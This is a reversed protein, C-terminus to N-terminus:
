PGVLAAKRLREAYPGGNQSSLAAHAVARAEASRGSLVLAQVQLLTAEAGLSATGLQAHLDLLALAANPDNHKLATRVSDLLAVESDLRDPRAKVPTNQRPAATAPAVASLPALGSARAGGFSLQATSSPAPPAILTVSSSAVLAAAMKPVATHATAPAASPATGQMSPAVSLNSLGTSAGPMSPQIVKARPTAPANLVFPSLAVGGILLATGGWQALPGWLPIRIAGVRGAAAAVRAAGLGAAGIGLAQAARGLTRPSPQDRLGSELVARLEPSPNEDLLRRLEDSM